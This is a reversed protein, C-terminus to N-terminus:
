VVITWVDTEPGADIGISAALVAADIAVSSGRMLIEAERGAQIEFRLNQHLLISGFQQASFQGARMPLRLDNGDAAHGITILRCFPAKLQSTATQLDQGLEAIRDSDDRLIM